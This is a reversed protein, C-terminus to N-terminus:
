ETKEEKSIPNTKSDPIKDVVPIVETEATTKVRSAATSPIFVSDEDMPELSDFEITIDNEDLSFNEYDSTFSTNNDANKYLFIQFTINM